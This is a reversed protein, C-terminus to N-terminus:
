KTISLLEIEYILTSNAPIMSNKKNGYGLAPPIIVKWKSGVPMLLLAETWGKIVQSVGFTGAKGRKYSSDFEKGNLFSGRYHTTVKSTMTPKQGYGRRLIKYQLGSRTRVYPGDNITFAQNEKQFEPDIKWAIRFGLDHYRSKKGLSLRHSSKTLKKNTMWSGGRFIHKSGTRPGTPDVVSARTYNGYWDNCWEWLSGLTDYLGYANGQKLGGSSIKGKSSGGYWSIKNLDGFTDGTTGARCAYEWQAETPMTISGYKLGELTELKRIFQSCDEWSVYYISSSDGVSFSKSGKALKMQQKISRGMVQKWQKQTVEFKGMYFDKSITVRHTPKSTSDTKSGMTFSGAPILRFRVGTKALQIELPLGKAVARKQIAQASMSGYSLNTLGSYHATKVALPFNSNRARGRRRRERVKRERASYVDSSRSSESPKPNLVIRFGLDLFRGTPSISLRYSSRPSVTYKVWSGGRVIHNGGSKPGTPNTLAGSGYSGYKDNTWEWVSGYMDYLGYANAQKQGVTHNTGKAVTVGYWALRSLSSGYTSSTTGARCAYEWQAETPLSLVGYDLGELKELKRLFKNTDSLSVFYMPYSNGTGKLNDTKNKMNRQQTISTRMVKYWQGQTIEYKAMYYNKTLTVKHAPKEKTTGYKYGMQFSGAPILRLHIGSKALKIELPKHNALERKQAALANSSGSSLGSISAYRAYPVKVTGKPLVQERSMTLVLTKSKRFSLNPVNTVTKYAALKLQLTVIAKYTFSLSMPTQGKKVGNVYLDAKLYVGTISDKVSILLEPQLSLASKELHVKAQLYHVTAQEYNFAKEEALAKAFVEKYNTFAVGGEKAFKTESANATFFSSIENKSKSLKNTIAKLNDSATKLLASAKTWATEAAEFQRKQYAAEATEKEKVFGEYQAKANIKLSNEPLAALGKGMALKAKLSKEHLTADAISSAHLTKADAFLASSEAFEGKSFAADALKRKLVSQEFLEKSLKNLDLKSNLTKNKALLALDRAADLKKIAVCKNTLKTYQEMSKEYSKSQFFSKAAREVMQMDNFLQEFGHEKAIGSDKQLDEYLIEAMTKIPILKNLSYKNQIEKRLQIAEVNAPALKIALSIQNSAESLKEMDVFARANLIHTNITKLKEALLQAAKEKASKEEALRIVEEQRRKEEKQATDYLNWAYFGGAGLVIIFGLVLAAVLGFIFAKNRKKSSKAKTFKEGELAKIFAGCSEFRDGAEKALARQVAANQHKNLEDLTDITENLVVGRMLAQDGTEFAGQFPVYASVLEHFLAGLAYQDTPEKQLKGTWQEPAMYPRTGSTNVVEKSVRGMSSRIEAALGFDLIKAQDDKTLMVNSPKIDRHLIKQSHAYDLAEGVEKCIAIAKEVPVKKDDFQKVWTSLCSGEVYEMVVLYDGDILGLEKDAANDCKEVKHLHQVAAINPHSLQHILKFNDRVNELEEPNHSILPPLSKLAVKIGSIEDTALYVAGFAGAGLKKHLLYRDVKGITQSGSEAMTNMASFDLEDEGDSKDPKKDSNDSM